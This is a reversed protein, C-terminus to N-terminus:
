LRGMRRDFGLWGLAAEFAPKGRGGLSPSLARMEGASAQMVGQVSFERDATTRGFIVEYANATANAPVKKLIDMYKAQDNQGALDALFMAQTLPDMNPSNKRLCSCSKPTPKEKRSAKRKRTPLSAQSQSLTEVSVGKKHQRDFSRYLDLFGPYRSNMTVEMTKSLIGM